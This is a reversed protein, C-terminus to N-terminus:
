SNVLIGIAAELNGQAAELARRNLVDDVFGMSSLEALKTDLDLVPPPAPPSVPALPHTGLGALAAAVNIPPPQPQLAALAAVVNLPSTALPIARPPASQVDPAWFAGGAGTSEPKAPKDFDDILKLIERRLPEMKTLIGERKLKLFFGRTAKGEKVLRMALTELTGLPNLGAQQLEGRMMHALQGGYPLYTLAVVVDGPDFPVPERLPDPALEAEDPLGAFISTDLGRARMLRVIRAVAPDQRTREQARVERIFQRRAKLTESLEDSFESRCAPCKRGMRDEIFRAQASDKGMTPLVCPLWCSVHMEHGCALRVVEAAARGETTGQCVPCHPAADLEEDGRERKAM